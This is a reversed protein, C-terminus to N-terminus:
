EPSRYTKSTSSRLLPWAGTYAVAPRLERFLAAWQCADLSRPAADRPFALQDALRRLRRPSVAGDLGDRLRPASFGARVFREFAAADDPRVRPSMRRVAILVAADVSPPPEFCAAPLRREVRLDFFAGAVVGRATAPWVECRKRAAGWEVILDARRLRGQPDLLRDLIAGSGAFPLNAVVRFPERPLTVGRADAEVVAVGRDGAFRRRLDRAFQADLEVARVNAGHRRLQASIHGTGAGLDLVLEGPEIAADDVLEAVFRRALLHRGPARRAAHARPAGHESV